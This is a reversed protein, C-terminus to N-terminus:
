NLELIKKISQAAISNPIRIRGTCVLPLQEKIIKKKM